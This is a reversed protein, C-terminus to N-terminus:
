LIQVGDREVAHRFPSGSRKRSEWEAETYALISPVLEGGAALLYGIRRLQRKRAAAENRVILLVDLDSDLWDDGRAKSGFLVLRRVASGQRALAQRHATLWTKEAATLPM